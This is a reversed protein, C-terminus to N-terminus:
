TLGARNGAVLVRRRREFGPRSITAPAPEVGRTAGKVKFPSTILQLPYSQGFFDNRGTPFVKGCPPCFVAPVSESSLFLRLLRRQDETANIVISAHGAAVRKLMNTIFNAAMDKGDMGLPSDKHKKVEHKGVLRRLTLKSDRKGISVGCERCIIPNFPCGTYRALPSPPEPQVISPATSADDDDVAMTKSSRVRCAPDANGRRIGVRVTNLSARSPLSLFDSPKLLPLLLAAAVGAPVFSTSDAEDEDNSNRV